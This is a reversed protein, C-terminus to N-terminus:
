ERKEALADKRAQRLAKIEECDAMKKAELKVERKKAVPV